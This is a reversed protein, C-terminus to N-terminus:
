VYGEVMRYLPRDFKKVRRLALTVQEFFDYDKLSTVHSESIVM